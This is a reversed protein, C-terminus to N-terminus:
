VWHDKFSKLRTIKGKAEYLDARSFTEEEGKTTRVVVSNNGIFRIIKVVRRSIGYRHKGLLKHPINFKVLQGVELKDAQVKDFEEGIRKMIWKKEAKPDKEMEAPTKGDLSSHPSNNYADVLNAMEKPLFDRRARDTKSEDNVNMDRLTRIVRDIVSLTQHHKSEISKMCIDHQRAWNLIGEAKFASEKDSTIQHVPNAKPYWDQLARFVEEESKAKLPYAWVYKTNVNIIILYFDPYLGGKRKKRIGEGNSQELLDIMFSGRVRGYVPKWYKANVGQQTNKKRQFVPIV